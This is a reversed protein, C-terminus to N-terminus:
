NIKKGTFPDWGRIFYWQKQRQIADFHLKDLEDESNM